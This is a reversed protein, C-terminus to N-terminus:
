SFFETSQFLKFGHWRTVKLQWLAGEEGENEKWRLFWGSRPLLWCSVLPLLLTIQALLEGATRPTLLAGLEAAKSCAANLSQRLSVQCLKLWCACCWHQKKCPDLGTNDEDNIQSQSFFSCFKIPSRHCSPACCPVALFPLFLFCSLSLLIIQTGTIHWICM